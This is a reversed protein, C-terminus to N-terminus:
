NIIFKIIKDNGDMILDDILGRNIAQRLSTIASPNHSYHHKIKSVINKLSTNGNGFEELLQNKTNTFATFKKGKNTGAKSFDKQGDLLILDKSIDSHIAPSLEKVTNRQFNIEFVGLGYLKCTKISFRWMRNRVLSPIVVYSYNTNALNSVAQEIVALTLGKKLEFAAIVDKKRTVVDIYRKGSKVEQFIECKDKKLFSILKEGIEVETPM